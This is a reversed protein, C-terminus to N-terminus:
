ECVTFIINIIYIYLLVINTIQYKDTFITPKRIAFLNSHSLVSKHTPVNPIFTIILYISKETVLLVIESQFFILLFNTKIGYMCTHMSFFEFQLSFRSFSRIISRSRSQLTKYNNFRTCLAWRLVTIFFWVFFITGVFYITSWKRRTM